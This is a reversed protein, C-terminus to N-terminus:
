RAEQLPARPRHFTPMLRALDAADQRKEFWGKLSDEADFVGFGEEFESVYHIM